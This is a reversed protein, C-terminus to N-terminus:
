ERETAVWRSGLWRLRPAMTWALYEPRPWEIPMCNNPGTETKGRGALVADFWEKLSASDTSDNAKLFADQGLQLLAVFLASRYDDDKRDVMDSNSFEVKMVSVLENDGFGIRCIALVSFLREFRSTAHGLFRDRYFPYIAGGVDAARLYLSPFADWGGEQRIIEIVRDSITIFAERPLAAIGSVITLSQERRNPADIRDSRDLAILRAVMRETFPALRQPNKAILPGTSWTLNSSRGDVLASLESFAEDEDQAPKAPDDLPAALVTQPNHFREIEKPTLKKVGLMIGVPDDFITRDVSEPITDIETSDWNLQVGCNHATTEDNISCGISFLPFKPLLWASASKFSGIITGDLSIVTSAEAIEWDKWGRAPASRVNVSVIKKSPREPLSLAAVSPQITGNTRVDIVRGHADAAKLFAEVQNRALLRFSLFEEPKYSQEPEYAVPIAHSTAFTEASKMVLSHVAPDFGLIKGPNAAKLETSKRAVAWGQEERAVYYGTYCLIPIFIVATPVRHTFAEFVLSLLCAHVLWGAVYAAGASRLADGLIPVPQILLLALLSLYTWVSTLKFATRLMSNQQQSGLRLDLSRPDLDRFRERAIVNGDIAAHKCRKM